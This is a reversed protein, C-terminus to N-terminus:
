LLESEADRLLKRKQSMDKLESDSLEFALLTCKISIFEFTLSFITAGVHQRYLAFSQTAEFIRKGEVCGLANLLFHILIYQKHYM